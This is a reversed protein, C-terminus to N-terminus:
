RPRSPRSHGRRRVAQRFRSNLSEIGNTTYILKRIPFDLFPVFEPWSREWTSIMAPYKGRWTEAFEPFSQEATLVTPATYITKLQRTIKASDAKSAYRLSSRV